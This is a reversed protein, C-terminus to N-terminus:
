LPVSNYNSNTSNFVLNIIDANEKNQLVFKFIIKMVFVAVLSRHQFENVIKEM